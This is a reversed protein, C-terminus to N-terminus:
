KKIFKENIIGNKTEIKLHYVGAPISKLNITKVGKEIKLVKQGSSSYISISIIDEDAKINIVDRAPNPYVKVTKKDNISVRLPNDKRSLIPDFPDIPHSTRPTLRIMVGEGPTLEPITITTTNSSANYQQPLTSFLNNGSTYTDIRPSIYARYNNGEISLVISSATSNLDKNMVWVYYEMSNIGVKSFLGLLVNNNSVTKIIGTSNSDVLEDIGFPRGQNMYTDSKHLTTIYDSTMIIPGVIEKLYKNVKQVSSYTSSYEEIGNMYSWYLLGKAGYAIASSTIFKLKPEYPLTTFNGYIGNHSQVVFWFPRLPGIKDKFAKMNYFFDTRFPEDNKLPYHDYSVFNTENDNIYMNLYDEYEADNQPAGWYRPFLNYYLPKEQFNSKFFTTWKNVNNYSTFGPEDGLFFGMVAADLGTPLNYKFRNLLEQKYDPLGDPDKYSAINHGTLLVKLSKQKALELYAYIKAYNNPSFMITPSVLFDIYADKVKQFKLLDGYYYPLTSGLLYHYDTHDGLISECDWGGFGSTSKDILWRGTETSKISLDSAGDGDYDATIPYADADGYQNYVDIFDGFGNNPLSLNAYDINWKEDVKVAIDTLGDGNYDGPVPVADALWTTQVVTEWGGFGNNPANPVAYDILWGGNDTKVSLDTLGDGNYDGPVPHADPGGYQSFILDWSGFGNNTATPDAFDIKWFGDDTKVAMDMISDNNYYGPVPHSDTGGYITSNLNLDWGGLGNNALDILWLGSDTKVALDTLGDGDYDGPVPIADDGGYEAYIKDWSGFGNNPTNPDAYDILWYGGSTKVSIDAYNDNNYDAPVARFNAKMIPPDFIGIQFDVDQLQGFSKNSLIILIFFGWFSLKSCSYKTKM